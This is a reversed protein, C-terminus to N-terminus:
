GLGLGLGQSGSTTQLTPVPVVPSPALSPLPLLGRSGPAGSASPAPGVSGNLLTTCLQSLTQGKSAATARLDALVQAVTGAGAQPASTARGVVSTCVAYATPTLGPRAGTGSLHSGSASASPKLHPKQSSSAAVGVRSTTSTQNPAVAPKGGPFPFSGTVAAAAVGGIVLSGAAAALALRIRGRARVRAPRRQPLPDDPGRSEEEIAMATASAFVAFAMREDALEAGSAPLCLASLVDAVAHAAPPSSAAPARGRLLEEAEDAPLGPERREFIIPRDNM